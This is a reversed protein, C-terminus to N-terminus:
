GESGKGRYRQAVRSLSYQAMEPYAAYIHELVEQSSMRNYTMKVYTIWDKISDKLRRWAEDALRRGDDTLQIRATTKSPVNRVLGADSLDDLVAFVTEDFPGYNDPEFRLDSLLKRGLDTVRLAYMEKVLHIRGPIPAYDKGSADKARLLSLVALQVPTLDDTRM